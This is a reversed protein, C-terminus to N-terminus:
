SDNEKDTITELIAREAARDRRTTQWVTNQEVTTAAEREIATRDPVDSSRQDLSLMRLAQTTREQVEVRCFVRVEKTNSGRDVWVRAVRRRRAYTEPPGPSAGEGLRTQVDFPNTVLVQRFGDRRRITLGFGRLVTETRDLVDAPAGDL